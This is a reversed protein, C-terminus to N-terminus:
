GAEPMFCAVQNERAWYPPRIGYLRMTAKEVNPPLGMEMPVARMLERNPGAESWDEPWPEVEWREVIGYGQASKKGIATVGECLGWVAEINGAAYWELPAAFLLINLPTRYARYRGSSEAIKGRKGKFDIYRELNDDFRRHWYTVYERVPRAQNFSCAWYWKDGAGRREFPLELKIWGDKSGPPPPNYFKEPYQRRIVEAALISDLPFYPETGAIRGDLLYARIRMPQM